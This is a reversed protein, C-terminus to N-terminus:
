RRRNRSEDTAATQEAPISVRLRHAMQPLEDLVDFADADPDGRHDLKRLERLVATSEGAALRERLVTVTATMDRRAASKALQGSILAGGGASLIAVLIVFLGACWQRMWKYNRSEGVCWGWFAWCATLLLLIGVIIKM